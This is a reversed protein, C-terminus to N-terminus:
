VYNCELEIWLDGFVQPLFEGSLNRLNWTKLDTIVKRCNYPIKDTFFLM